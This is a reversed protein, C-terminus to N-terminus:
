KMQGILIVKSLAVRIKKNDQFSIKWSAGSLLNKTLYEKNPNGLKRKLREIISKRSSYIYLTKEFYDINIITEQEELNTNYYKM